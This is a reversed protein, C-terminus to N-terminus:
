RPGSLAAASGDGARERVLRGVRAARPPSLFPPPPSAVPLRCGARARTRTGHARPPAPPGDPRDTPPGGRHPPSRSPPHGTFAPPDPRCPAGGRRGRRARGDAGRAVRRGGRPRRRGSRGPHGGSASGRWAAYGRVDHPEGPADRERGVEGGRRGRSTQTRPPPPTRPKAPGPRGRAGGDGTGTVGLGTRSRGVGRASGGTRRPTPPAATARRHRSGRPPGGARGGARGDGERRRGQAPEGGTPRPDEAGHGRRGRPPRRKAQTGLGPVEGGRRRGDPERESERERAGERGTRGGGASAVRKGDFSGKRGRHRCPPAGPVAPAPRALAVPAPPKPNLLLSPRTRARAHPLDGGPKPSVPPPTTPRHHGHHRTHRDARAGRGPDRTVPRYRRPGAHQPRGRASFRTPRHRPPPSRPPAGRGAGGGM